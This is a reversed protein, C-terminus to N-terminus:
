ESRPNRIMAPLGARVRICDLSCWTRWRGNVHPWIIGMPNNRGTLAVRVVAPLVPLVTGGAIIRVDLDRLPGRIKLCAFVTSKNLFTATATGDTIIRVTAKPADPLACNPSLEVQDRNHGYGFEHGSSAGPRKDDCAPV